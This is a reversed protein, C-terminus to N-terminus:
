YEFFVIIHRKENVQFLQHNRIAEKNTTNIHIEKQELTTFLKMFQDIQVSDVAQTEIIIKKSLAISKAIWGSDKDKLETIIKCKPWGVGGSLRKSYNYVNDSARSANELILIDAVIPPDDTPFGLSEKEIENVIQPNWLKMYINHHCWGGAQNIQLPGNGDSVAKLMATAKGSVVHGLVEHPWVLEGEKATLARYSIYTGLVAERNGSLHDLRINGRWQGNDESDKRRMAFLTKSYMEADQKMFAM